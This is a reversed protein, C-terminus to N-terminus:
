ISSRTALIIQISFSDLGTRANRNVASTFKASEILASNELTKILTVVNKGQGKIIIENGKFRLQPVYSEDPIIRTLEEIIKAMPPNESKKAILYNLGNLNKELSHKKKIVAATQERLEAIHQKQELMVTRKQMIPSFIAASCCLGLFLVLWANHNLRLKAKLEGLLNIKNGVKKTTIRDFPMGIVRSLEKLLPAVPAQPLVFIDVLLKQKIKNKDLVLADFYIQDINFPTLKDLQFSVASRLNGEAQMPLEIQHKLLDNEDVYLILSLDKLSAVNLQKIKHMIFADPHDKLMLKDFQEIRRTQGAYQYEFLLQENSWTVVVSPLPRQFALKLQPSISNALIKLWAAFLVALDVGFFIWKSSAPLQAKNTAM